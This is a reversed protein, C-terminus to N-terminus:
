FVTMYTHLETDEFLLDCCNQLTWRKCHINCVNWVNGHLECFLKSVVLSYSSQTNLDEKVHHQATQHTTGLTEFSHLLNV